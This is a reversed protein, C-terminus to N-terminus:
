VVRSHEYLAIALAHTVNLSELEPRHPVFTSIGDISSQIGQGESGVVFIVPEKHLINTIPTSAARKELRYVPRGTKKLFSPLKDTSITKWPAHFIAGASSRIVKPSTADASNTLILAADFGLALRFAAGVNGPDQVGDLVILIPRSLLVEDGWSPIRAVGAVQQPNDTTVIDKFGETTHQDFYFDLLDGAEELLKPGEVLCRGTKERGKKTMVARVLKEQSRNLM